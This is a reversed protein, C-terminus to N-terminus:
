RMGKLLYKITHRTADDIFTIFSAGVLVSSVPAPGLINTTTEVLHGGDTVM